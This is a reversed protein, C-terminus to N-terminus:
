NFGEIFEIVKPPTDLHGAMMMTTLINLGIHSQTEEHKLMDSTFSALANKIDGNLAYEIARKKCWHLHQERNM